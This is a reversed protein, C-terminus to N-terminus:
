HHHNTIFMDVYSNRFTATDGNELHLVLYEHLDDTGDDDTMSEIEEADQGTIIEWNLVNKYNVRISNEFIEKSATYKFEGYVEVEVDVKCGATRLERM